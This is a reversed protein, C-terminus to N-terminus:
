YHPFITDSVVTSYGMCIGYGNEINSYLPFATNTSLGFEPFRGSNYLYKQRAFLYYDKSVTRLEFIFPFLNTKYNIGNDSNTSGTTYNIYMTYTETAILENSFVTIPLGENLLVPDTINLIEPTFESVDQYGDSYLLRIRAEFYQPIQPQNIFTFQVAPYTTGEEDQGAVAIHVLDLLPTAEPLTISGSVEAFSDIHVKYQYKVLTNAVITSIYEGDVLSTLDEVFEGDAYLKVVANDTGKIENGDFKSALSVHLMLPEGARVISNLVPLSSFNPYDTEVLKRCATSTLLLQGIILFLLWYKLLTKHIM